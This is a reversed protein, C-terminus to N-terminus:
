TLGASSWSLILAVSTDVCVIVAELFNSTQDSMSVFFVSDTDTVLVVGTLVASDVHTLAVDLTVWHSAEAWSGVVAMLATGVGGLVVISVAYAYICKIM